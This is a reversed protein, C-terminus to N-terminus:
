QIRLLDTWYRRSHRGRGCVQSTLFGDVRPTLPIEGGNQYVPNAALATLPKGSSVNLGASLM